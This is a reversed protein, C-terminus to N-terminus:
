ESISGSLAFSEEILTFKTSHTALIGISTSAATSVVSTSSTVTFHMAIEIKSLPRNLRSLDRSQRVHYDLVFSLLDQTLNSPPLEIFTEKVSGSTGFFINSLTNSKAECLFEM